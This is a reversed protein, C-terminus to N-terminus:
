VIIFKQSAFPADGTLKLFYMGRELSIDFTKKGSFHENNSLIIRGQLDVIKVNEV